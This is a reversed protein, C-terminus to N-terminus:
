NEATLQAEIRAVANMLSHRTYRPRSNEDPRIGVIVGARVWKYFAPKSLGLLAMAEKATLLWKEGNM